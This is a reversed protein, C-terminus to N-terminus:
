QFFDEYCNDSILPMDTDNPDINWTFPAIGFYDFMCMEQGSLTLPCKSCDEAVNRCYEQLVNLAAFVYDEETYKKKPQKSKNSHNKNKNAM